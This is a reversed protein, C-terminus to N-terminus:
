RRIWGHSIPQALVLRYFQEIRWTVAEGVRLWMMHIALWALIAVAVAGVMDLPFHVGLYVRAWAVVAGAALVSWGILSRVSNFVLTLGIGVFITAHDSPFSSDAAHAMFSHGFGMMFPRPHPWLLIIIQNMGLALLVVFCGKLALNRQREKGWCWLGILALPILYILGNALLIATGIRWHPTNLDANIGLFTALNLAELTDM